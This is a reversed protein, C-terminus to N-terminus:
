RACLAYATVQRPSTGQNTVGVQWALVPNGDVDSTEQPFQQSVRLTDDGIGHFGGGLVKKGAPCLATVVTFAGPSAERTNVVKEYDALGTCGTTVTVLFLTAAVCRSVTDLRRCVMQLTRMRM